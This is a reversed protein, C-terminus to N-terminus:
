ATSWRTRWATLGSSAPMPCAGCLKAFAAESRIRESDDEFVVLTEAATDPRVGVAQRM